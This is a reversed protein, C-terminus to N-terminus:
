NGKPTPPADNAMRLLAFRGSLTLRSQLMENVLRGNGERVVSRINRLDHDTFQEERVFQKAELTGPSSSHSSSISTSRALPVPNSPSGITQAIKTVMDQVEREEIRLIREPLLDGLEENGFPYTRSGPHLVVPVINKRLSHAMKLEFMCNTSKTYAPTLFCVFFESSSIGEYMMRNLDQGVEMKKTDIWINCEFGRKELLMMRISQVLNSDCHSYSFFAEAM